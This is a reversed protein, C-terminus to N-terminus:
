EMGSSVSIAENAKSLSKIGSELEGIASLCEFWHLLKNHAFGSLYGFTLSPNGPSDALHSAWYLSSYRLAEPIINSDIVEPTHADISGRPLNCINHRLSKNLCQLCKQALMQHGIDAQVWHEGCRHQNAAFDGFSAHFVAVPGNNESAGRVVAHFPSLHSNTSGKKLGLLSDITDTYLPTQLLVVTSLVNLRTEIENPQLGEFAQEMILKYLRELSGTKHLPLPEPRMIDRLREEPNANVDLIYRAATAAYIFLGASRATLEDEPRWASKSQPYESTMGITSLQSKLYKKIDSQVVDVTVDKHLSFVRLISGVFPRFLKEMQNEPRSSIIFKLPIDAVGDLIAEILSYVRKPPSCEDLADIVIVKYVKTDEDFVRRIPEAILSSFQDPFSNLSAVDPNNDLVKCMVSRLQPSSLALKSAITPLILDVDKLTSRSCFFSAGLKLKEDLRENLTHVISTKGTGVRGNLWFVKPAAPDLAWSELDALIEKRTGEMCGHLEYDEPDRRTNYSAHEAPRLLETLILVETTM